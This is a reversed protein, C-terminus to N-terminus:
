LAGGAKTLLQGLQKVQKGIDGEANKAAATTQQGLRKLISGIQKGDLSSASLAEKLEGLGDSIEKLDANSSHSLSRRWTSIVELANKPDIATLDGSLADITNTLEEQYDRKTETM